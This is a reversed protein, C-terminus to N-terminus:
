SIPLKAIFDLTITEFPMAEAKPFIPQLPAETPQNNIKHRQCEMCGKVYETIDKAHQAVLIKLKHPTDNQQDRPPWISPFQPSCMYHHM